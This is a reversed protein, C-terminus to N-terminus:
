LRDALTRLQRAAAAIDSQAFLARIVAVGAIGSGNLRPLNEPTIGGIAVAPIRVAHCIASLERHALATVDTKTETTYVAGCGIYDAGAEQAALAEAVNHASAGIIADAGLMTRAKTIEMDSLGVHVGDAGIEKAIDVADNIILPIRYRRCVEKAELAERLFDERNLHKERLQFLTVGNEFLKPLLDKLHENEKLWGRDSVAYLRLLQPSIDM